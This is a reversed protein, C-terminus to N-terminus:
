SQRVTLPGSRSPHRRATRKVCAQCGHDDVIPLGLRTRAMLHKSRNRTSRGHCARRLGTRGRVSRGSRGGVVVGTMFPRGPALLPNLRDFSASDVYRFPQRRRVLLECSGHHSLALTGLAGRLPSMFMTSPEPLITKLLTNSMEPFRMVWIATGFRYRPAQRLNSTRQLEFRVEPTSRALSPEMSMLRSGSHGSFLYLARVCVAGSSPPNTTRHCCQGSWGIKSWEQCRSCSWGPRSPSASLPV